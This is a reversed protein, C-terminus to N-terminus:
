IELKKNSKNNKTKSHRNVKKFKIKSKEKEMIRNLSVKNSQNALKRNLKSNRTKSYKNVKKYNKKM